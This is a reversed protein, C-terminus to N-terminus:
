CPVPPCPLTITWVFPAVVYLVTIGAATCKLVAQLGLTYNCSAGSVTKSVAAAANVTATCTACAGIGLVSGCVQVAAQGSASASCCNLTYNVALNVNYSLSAITATYTCTKWIKPFCPATYTVQLSFSHGLHETFSGHALPQSCLNLPGMVVGTPAPWVGTQTVFNGFGPAGTTATGTGAANAITAVANFNAKNSGLQAVMTDLDAEKINKVGAAAFAASAGDVVQQWAANAAAIAAPTGRAAALQAKRDSALKTYNFVIHASYVLGLLDDPSLGRSILEATPATSEHIARLTSVHEKTLNVGTIRKLAPQAVKPAKVSALWKATAAKSDAASVAKKPFQVDLAKASELGPIQKLQEPAV